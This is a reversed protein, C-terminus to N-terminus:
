ENLSQIGGTDCAYMMSVPIEYLTQSATLFMQQSLFLLCDLNLVCVCVLSIRSKTFASLRFTQAVDNHCRESMCWKGLAVMNADHFSHKPILDALYDQLRNPVVQAVISGPRLFFRQCPPAAEDLVIASHQRERRRLWLQDGAATCTSTDGPIRRIRHGSDFAYCSVRNASKCIIKARASSLRRGPM